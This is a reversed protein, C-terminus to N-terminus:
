QSFRRQLLRNRRHQSKKWRIRPRRESLHPLPLKLQSQHIKTLHLLQTVATKRRLIALILTLRRLFRAMRRPTKTSSKQKRTVSRQSQNAQKIRMQKHGTARLISPMDINGNRRVLILGIFAHIYLLVRGLKRNQGQRDDRAM